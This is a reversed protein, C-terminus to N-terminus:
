SSAVVFKGGLKEAFEEDIRKNLVDCGYEFQRNANDKEKYVFHLEKYDGRRPFLSLAEDMAEQPSDTTVLTLLKTIELLQEFSNMRLPGELQKDIQQIRRQSNTYSGGMEWPFSAPLILDAMRATDSMFFDQVMLFDIQKLKDIIHEKDVACGAPDEGFIFANRLKGQHFLTNVDLITSPLEDTKWLFAMRYQLDPDCIAEAGPGLQPSVGMDFIGHSNNREKLAIIGTATKGLKGTLMALNHMSMGTNASLEKEEFILLANMENIYDEAFGSVVEHSVGAARLLTDYDESLMSKMYAEFDETRSNVFDVNYRKEKIIYYNVAKIFYFYNRIRIQQDAKKSFWSDAKTTIHVLEIGEKHRTNMILHNVIPHNLHLEGGAVFLKSAGRIDCYIANENSNRVYGEGRGMYHFSATNNTKAGTRALKQIMYLEENSLRAGGFFANEDASVANIREAILKFAEEFEIEKWTDATRLMPKSIRDRDSFHKYGFLQRRNILSLRNMEHQLPRAAYLADRYNFLEIEYGESGVMDISHIAQVPLPGFSFDHNESIAGVPCSTICMGCSECNTETLALSNIPAAYSKMETERMELAKAGVIEACVRVCRGCGICKAPELRIFPHRSDIKMDIVRRDVDKQKAGYRDSYLRLKCDYYSLCGCETCDAIIDSINQPRQSIEAIAPPTDVAIFHKKKSLFAESQPKFPRNTLYSDISYAAIIAQKLQDVFLEPKEDFDKLAFVFPIATQLSDSLAQLQTNDMISDDNSHLNRILQALSSSDMIETTLLLADAKQLVESLKSSEEFANITSFEVGSAAIFDIDKDLLGESLQKDRAATRMWGGFSASSDLIQVRYGKQNLLYSALLAAAASGFIVVSKGNSEIKNDEILSQRQAAVAKEIERISVKSGNSDHREGCAFECPHPCIAACINALPNREALRYAADQLRNNKLLAIVAQIDVGVPCVTTCPPLCDAFHTRLKEELQERRYLSLADSETNISIDKYLYTLNASHLGEKGEIEVVCIGCSNLTELRPDYCMCPIEIGHRLACDYVSEGEFGTLQKGNITIKIYQSM